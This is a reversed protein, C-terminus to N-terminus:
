PDSGGGGELPGGHALRAQDLTWQPLTQSIFGPQVCAWKEKRRGLSLACAAAVDPQWRGLPGTWIGLLGVPGCLGIAVGPRTVVPGSM